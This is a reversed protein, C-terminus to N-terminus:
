KILLYIKIIESNFQPRNGVFMLRSDGQTQCGPLICNANLNINLHFIKTMNSWNELLNRQFITTPRNTLHWRCHKPESNSIKSNRDYICTDIYFCQQRYFLCMIYMSVRFGSYYLQTSESLRIYRVCM